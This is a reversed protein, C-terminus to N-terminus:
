DDVTVPRSFWDNAKDNPGQREDARDPRRVLVWRKGQVPLDCNWSFSAPFTFSLGATRTSHSHALRRIRRGLSRGASSSQEGRLTHEDPQGLELRRWHRCHGSGCQTTSTCLRRARGAGSRYDVEREQAARLQRSGPCAPRVALYRRQLGRNDRGYPPWPSMAAPDDLHARVRLYIRLKPLVDGILSSTTLDLIESMQTAATPADARGSCRTVQSPDVHGVMTPGLGSCGPPVVAHFRSSGAFFQDHGRPQAAAM